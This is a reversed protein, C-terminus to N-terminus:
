IPNWESKISEFWNMTGKILNKETLSFSFPIEVFKILHSHKLEPKEYYFLILKNNNTVQERKMGFQITYRDNLFSKLIKKSIHKINEAYIIRKDVFQLYNTPYLKKSNKEFFEKELKVGHFGLLSTLFYFPQINGYFVIIKEEFNFPSYLYGFLKLLEESM